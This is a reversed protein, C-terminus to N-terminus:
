LVFFIVIEGFCDVILLFYDVGDKIIVEWLWEFWGVWMFENVFVEIM